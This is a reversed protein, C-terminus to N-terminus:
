SLIIYNKWKFNNLVISQNVISIKKCLFCYANTENQHEYLFKKSIIILIFSFIIETFSNLSKLVFVYDLNYFKEEFVSKLSGNQYSKAPYKKGLIINDKAFQFENQYIALDEQHKTALTKLPNKYNAMDAAMQTFEKHKAEYRMMSSHALPGMQRLVLAYHTLNYHKPKLGCGFKKIVSKLHVEVLKELTIVDQESVKTSFVIQLIQLLSTVTTWIKSLEDNTNIEEFSIYSLHLIITYNQIANQNCNGKNTIMTSPLKNSLLIGFNYSKISSNIEEETFLKLKYCKNLIQATTFPVVGELLDHM